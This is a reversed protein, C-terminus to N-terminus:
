PPEAPGPDGSGRAEEGSPKGLVERVVEVLAADRLKGQLRTLVARGPTGHLGLAAAAKRRLLPPRERDALLAGLWATSEPDSFAALSSVARARRVLDTGADAAIGRLAAAASPGLARWENRSPSHEPAALLRAVQGEVSAQQGPPPSSPPSSPSRPTAQPGPSTRPAAADKDCGCTACGALGSAVLAAIVAGVPM